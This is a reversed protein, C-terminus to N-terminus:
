YLPELNEIAQAVLSNQLANALLVRADKREAASGLQSLNLTLSAKSMRVVQDVGNVTAVVPFSMSLDIRYSGTASAPKRVSINMGEFGQPITANRNALEAVSGDTTVPAFTHIVPTSKGDAIAINGIAPM